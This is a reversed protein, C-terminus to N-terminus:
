RGGGGNRSKKEDELRSPGSERNEGRLGGEVWGQTVVAIADSYVSLLPLLPRNWTGWVLGLMSTSM